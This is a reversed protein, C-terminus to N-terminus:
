TPGIAGAIGSALPLLAFPWFCLVLLPESNRMQVKFAAQCALFSL